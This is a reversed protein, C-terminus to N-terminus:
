DSGKGRLWQLMQGLRKELWLMGRDLWELLQELPHKEYAVLRAEAEIWGSTEIAGGTPPPPAAPATTQATQTVITRTEVQVTTVTPVAPESRRRRTLFAAIPNASKLQGGAGVTSGDAASQNQLEETWTQELSSPNAQRRDPPRNLHGFLDDMTLWPQAPEATDGPTDRTDLTALGGSGKFYAAVQRSVQTVGTQLWAKLQGVGEEASLWDPKASRLEPMAPLEPQQPLLGVLKSEQFLNTAMAVPSVQMWAMLHYFARIPPLAHPKEKPPPLFTNVRLAQLVPRRNGSLQRQRWYDAMEWVLRRQLQDQQERTLIDLIQNQVTVLVLSRTDLLSAVGQVLVRAPALGGAAAVALDSQESDAAALSTGPVWVITQPTAGPVEAPSAALQPLEASPLLLELAQVADLVRQIPRDVAPQFEAPASSASPSASESPKAAGLRPMAQVAQKLQKGVLRTAQFAAYIPYLMIQVGWVALLKVQRWTQGARDQLQM